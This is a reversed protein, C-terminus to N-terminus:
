FKREFRIKSKDSLSVRYLLMFLIACSVFFGALHFYFARESMWPGLNMYFRQNPFDMSGNKDVINAKNYDNEFDILLWIKSAIFALCFLAFYFSNSFSFKNIAVVLFVVLWPFLNFLIRSEPMIGFLFLNMTIAAIIGWGATSIERSLDNWFLVMLCVAIGFFGYHAALPLLPWVLSYVIPNQLISSTNYITSTPVHFFHITLSVACFVFVSLIMRGRDVSKLFFKFNFLQQNFFIKSYAYYFVLLFGISYPLLNWIIKPVYILNTDAKSIIIVYVVSGLFLILSSLSLITKLNKSLPTFAVEQYPFAILLLGQYYGMPWTFALLISITILGAVNQRIYFYFLAVSLSFALSDTMAPFYYPWKVLAFNMFLLVFALLQNKFYIGFFLLIKKFFYAASVVSLLSIMEFCYFIHHPSLELSFALLVNRILFSPLIRHIYYSDFFFSKDFQTVLTQYVYGDTGFGNNAPFKEAFLISFLGYNFLIIPFFWKHDLIQKVQQRIQM